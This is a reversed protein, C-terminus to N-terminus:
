NASLGDASTSEWLEFDDSGDGDAWAEAYDDSLERARLLAIAARIAASRSRVAHASAYADLFDIEDEGLSVSLKM